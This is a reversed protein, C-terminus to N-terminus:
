RTVRRFYDVSYWEEKGADNKVLICDDYSYDLMKYKKRSTLGFEEGHENAEVLEGIAVLDMWDIDTVYPNLAIKGNIIM